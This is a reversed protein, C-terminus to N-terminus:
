VDESCGQAAAPPTAPPPVVSTARAQAKGIIRRLHETNVEASVVQSVSVLPTMVSRVTDDANVWFLRGCGPCWRQPGEFTATTTHDCEPCKM